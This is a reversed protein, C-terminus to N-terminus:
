YGRQQLYKEVQRREWGVGFVGGAGLLVIATIAVGIGTGLMPWYFWLSETGDAMDIAFWMLSLATYIGLITYLIRKRRIWRHAEARVDHEHPPAPNPLPGSGAISGSPPAWSSATPTYPLSTAIVIDHSTNSATTSV